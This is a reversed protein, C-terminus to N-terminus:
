HKRQGGLFRLLRFGMYFAGFTLGSAILAGFLRVSGSARGGYVIVGPRLPLLDQFTPLAFDILAVVGACLSLLGLTASIIKHTM